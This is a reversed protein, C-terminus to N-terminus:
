EIYGLDQLFKRMEREEGASLANGDGDADAHAATTAVPHAAVWEPALAASLVRGDIDDPIAVGALHLATPLVDGLGVTELRAGSRFPAGAALFIGEMKHTGSLNRLTGESVPSFLQDVDHGGDIGEPTMLLIDPINDLHPGSHVEEKKRITGCLVAGTEPDRLEALAAIIEDRLREYEAGPAVIGQPQRGRVNLNVGTVPFFIPVAYAQTHAWDVRGTGNLRQRIQSQVAAPLHNKLWNKKGGLWRRVTDAQRAVRNAMRVRSASVPRLFGREALVYNLNLNRTAAPGGGHDSLVIVAWEEGLSQLWRGVMRDIEVYWRRIISRDHESARPDHLPSRPDHLHWFSHHLGDPIGTLTVILDTGDAIARRTIQDMVELEYANCRDIAAIDGAKKARVLEDHSLVSLPPLTAAVEPPSAYARLRDPVPQGSVLVGNIPWPPYTIPLRYSLIRKGAASAHDLLTKGRIYSSNVLTDSFHTYRSLDLNQFNFLGHRGPNNGTLFTVWAPASIPPVTSMMTASVGRRELAALTAMEGADMLPRAIDFTMGDLGILLVKM